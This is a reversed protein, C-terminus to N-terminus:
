ALAILDVVTATRVEYWGDRLLGSRARPARPSWNHPSAHVDAADFTPLNEASQGFTISTVIMMINILAFLRKM